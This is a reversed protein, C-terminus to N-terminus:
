KTQFLFHGLASGSEQLCGSRHQSWGPSNWSPLLFLWSNRLPLGPARCSDGYLGLLKCHGGRGQGSTLGGHWSCTLVVFVTIGLVRGRSASCSFIAELVTRQARPMGVQVACAGAVHDSPTEAKGWRNQPPRGAFRGSRLRVTVTPTNSGVSCARRWRVGLGARAPPVM